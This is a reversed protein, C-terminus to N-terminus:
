AVASGPRWMITGGGSHTGMGLVVGYTPISCCTWSGYDGNNGLRYPNDTWFPHSDSQLRWASAGGAPNNCRYVRGGGRQLLMITSRTTDTPDLLMNYSNADYEVNSIRVGSPINYVPPTQDNANGSAIALVVSGGNEGGGFLALDLGPVYLSSSHKWNGYTGNYFISDRVLTWTGNIVDFYSLEDNSFCYIGPQGPGLLNPHFVPGPNPTASNNWVDFAADPLKGWSDAQRNYRLLTRTNNGESPQQQVHYYDGPRHTHDFTTCWIHGFSNPTVNRSITRWTNSSESYIHHTSRNRGGMSSQPKGMYQIERRSEDFFATRNQWSIDWEEIDDPMPLSDLWQGPGLGAADDSLSGPQTPCQLQQSAGDLPPPCPMVALSQRTLALGALSTAGFVFERRKM